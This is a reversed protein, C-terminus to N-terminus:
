LGRYPVFQGELNRTWSRGFRDIWVNDRVVSLPPVPLQGRPTLVPRYQQMNNMNNPLIGTTAGNTFRQPSPTTPGHGTMGSSASKPSVSTGRPRTQYQAPHSTPSPRNSMSSPTGGNNAIQRLQQAFTQPSVRQVPQATARPPTPPYAFGNHRPPSQNFGPFPVSQARRLNNLIAQLQSPSYLNQPSNPPILHGWGNQRSPSHFPYQSVPQRPPTIPPRTVTYFPQRPQSTSPQRNIVPVANPKHITINKVIPRDGDYGPPLNSPTGTGSTFSPPDPREIQERIDNNCHRKSDHDDCAQERKLAGAPTGSASVGAQTKKKYPGRSGKGGRGSAKGTEPLDKEEKIMTPKKVEEELGTVPQSPTIREDTLIALQGGSSLDLKARPLHSRSLPDPETRYKRPREPWATACPAQCCSTPPINTATHMQVDTKAPPVNVTGDSAHGVCLPVLARKVLQRSCAEYAEEFVLLPNLSIGTCYPCSCNESKAIRQLALCMYRIKREPDKVGEIGNLLEIHPIQPVLDM